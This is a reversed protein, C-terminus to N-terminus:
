DANIRVPFIAGPLVARAIWYLVLAVVLLGGIVCSTILIPNM